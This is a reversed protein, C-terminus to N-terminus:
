VVSKRDRTAWEVYADQVGAAESAAKLAALTEATISPDNAALGAILAADDTEDLAEFAAIAANIKTLEADTGEVATTDALLAVVDAHTTTFASVSAATAAAEAAAAAAATQIQKYGGTATETETVKTIKYTPTFTLATVNATTWDVNQNMAGIFTFGSIGGLTSIEVMNALQAQTTNWDLTDYDRIHYVAKDLKFAIDAKAITDTETSAAFAVAGANNAAPEMSVDALATATVNTINKGGTVNTIAFATSGDLKPQEKAAVVALYMKLEDTKAGDVNTDENYPQAKKIDDVFDIAQKGAANSVTGTVKFSVNVDKDATSFNALGYNFSVIQATDTVADAASTVAPTTEKYYTEDKDFDGAAAYQYPSAETGEGTRTYLYGKNEKFEAEKLEDTDADESYAFAVYEADAEETAAKKTITYGQPNLAIKISTPVIVTEVSYSLINGTGASGAIETASATMTSGVILTLSCVAALYKKFNRKM